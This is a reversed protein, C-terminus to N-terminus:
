SRGARIIDYMVEPAIAWLLAALLAVAGGFVFGGGQWKKIIGGPDSDPLAKGTNYIYRGAIFFGVALVASLGTLFTSSTEVSAGTLVGGFGFISPGFLAMIVIPAVTNLGLSVVGGVCNVALCVVGIANVGIAIVGSVNIGVVFFGRTNIGFTIYADKTGFLPMRPKSKASSAKKPHSSASSKATDSVQLHATMQRYLEGYIELDGLHFFETQAGKPRLKTRKGFARRAMGEVLQNTDVVFQRGDRRRIEWEARGGKKLASRAQSIAAQKNAELESWGAQARHAVGESERDKAGSDGAVDAHDAGFTLEMGGLAAGGGAAASGAGRDAMMKAGGDTEDSGAASAAEGAMEGGAASVLQAALGKDLGEFVIPGQKTQLELKEGFIEDEITAGEIQEERVLTVPGPEFLKEQVFAIGAPGAVVLGSEGGLAGGQKMKGECHVVARGGLAETGKQLFQDKKLV